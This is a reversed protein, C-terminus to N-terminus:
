KGYMWVLYDGSGNGLDLNGIVDKLLYANKYPLPSDVCQIHVHLRWVFPPYMIYKVWKSDSYMADLRRLAPLHEPSLDRLCRLVTGDKMEINSIAMLIDSHVNWKDMAWIDLRVLWEDSNFFVRSPGVRPIPSDKWMDKVSGVMKRVWDQKGEFDLKTECCWGNIMDDKREWADLSRETFSQIDGLGLDFGFEYLSVSGLEQRLPLKRFLKACKYLVCSHTIVVVSENTKSTQLANWLAMLLRLLGTSDMTYNEDFHSDELCHVHLHSGVIAGTERARELGSTIVCSCAVGRDYMIKKLKDGLMHSQHVGKGDLRNSSDRHAHRCMFVLKGPM